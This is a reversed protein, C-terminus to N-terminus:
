GEKKARAFEAPDRGTARCVAREEETLGDGAAGDPKRATFSAAAGAIVPLTKALDKFRDLGGEARCMALFGPRSAPTVRGERQAQDLAADIAATAAAADLEKLRNEANTARAVVADLDARPAYRAMDPESARNAARATRAATVIAADDADVALGLAERLQSALDVDTETTAGARNLARLPLNPTNTLAVNEIRSIPNPAARGYTFVPSVFRYERDRVQNAARPTWEVRGWIAGERLELQEVWGAAPAEQGTPARHETAHEWDVPLPRNVARSAAVVTAPDPNAWRRGDVGVVVPGAPILEIWEPAAGGEVNLARPPLAAQLTTTAGSM